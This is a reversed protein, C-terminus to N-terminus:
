TRRSYSTSVRKEIAREGEELLGGWKKRSAPTFSHNGTTHHHVYLLCADYIYFHAMYQVLIQYFMKYSIEEILVLYWLVPLSCFIDWYM